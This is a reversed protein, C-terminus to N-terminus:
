SPSLMTKAMLRSGFPPEGVPTAVPGTTNEPGSSGISQNRKEDREAPDRLARRTPVIKEERMRFGEGDQRRLQKPGAGSMLEM